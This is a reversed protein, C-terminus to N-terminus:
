ECMRGLIVHHFSAISKFEDLESVKHEMTLMNEQWYPDVHIDQNQQLAWFTRVGFSKKIEFGPLWDILDEDTYYMISGYKQAIGDEGDLVAHGREFNNLLAVMQMVRGARNHKVISLIGDEKLIRSFENLILSRDHTYELVNHCVVVDFSCSELNKLVELAGEIQTYEDIGVRSSLMDKSPEIALVDNHKALAHATYGQGSGYDLIKRNKIDELQDWIMKKQLYEWTPLSHTIDEVTGGYTSRMQLIRRKDIDTMSEMPM